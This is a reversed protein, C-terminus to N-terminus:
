YARGAAIEAKNMNLLGEAGEISDLAKDLLKGSYEKV